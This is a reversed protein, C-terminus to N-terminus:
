LGKGFQCNPFHCLDCDLCLGGNGLKAIDEITITDKAILRPLLIDFVTRKSYMVCGPLGVIPTGDDFYSLLFMAGPLVPSGYSVLTAGCNKIATPTLDDPDVSMGGTCIILDVNSSKFEKIKETIKNLNDDIIVHDVVEVNYEKLKDIIVPTFTDKILGNYVESGTTVVACTKIQYPLIDFIQTHNNTKVVKELKEKEIMLPIIRTGVLKDGKKVPYNNHRASIIINDFMNINYLADTNIKFLGDIHSFLDIKGEKVDSQYMTDNKCLNILIEAAENEHILHEDDNEIVYLNYKGLSHLIKIDEEQVVHGKRFRVGKVEDKIIQTIDHCLTQGVANETKILKM